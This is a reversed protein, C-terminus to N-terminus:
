RKIAFCFHHTGAHVYVHVHICAIINCIDTYRDMYRAGGMCYLILNTTKSPENRLAGRATRNWAVTICTGHLDRTSMLIYQVYM